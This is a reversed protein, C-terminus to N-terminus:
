AYIRNSIYVNDKKLVTVVNAKRYFLSSKKTLNQKYFLMAASISEM